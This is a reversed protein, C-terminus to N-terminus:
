VCIEKECLSLLCEIWRREGRVKEEPVKLGGWSLTRFVRRMYVGCWWACVGDSDSRCQVVCWVM